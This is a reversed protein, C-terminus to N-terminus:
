SEDDGIGGLEQKISDVIADPLGRALLLGCMTGKVYERGFAEDVGVCPAIVQDSCVQIRSELLVVFAKWAASKVMGGLLEALEKDQRDATRSSKVLEALEQTSILPPV